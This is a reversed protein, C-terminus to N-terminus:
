PKTESAVEPKESADAASTPPVPLRMRMAPHMPPVWCPVPVMQMMPHPMMPMMPMPPCYAWPPYFPYPFPGGPYPPIQWPVPGPYGPMLAPQAIDGASICENGTQSDSDTTEAKTINAVAAPQQSPLKSSPQVRATTTTLRADIDQGLQGIDDAETAAESESHFTSGKMAPVFGIPKTEGIAGVSSVCSGDDPIDKDCVSALSRTSTDNAFLEDHTGFLNSDDTYLSTPPEENMFDTTEQSAFHKHPMTSGMGCQVSAQLNNQVVAPITGSSPQDFNEDAFPLPYLTNHNRDTNFTDSQPATTMTAYYPNHFPSPMDQQFQSSYCHLGPPFKPAGSSPLVNFFERDTNSSEGLSHNTFGPPTHHLDRLGFADAGPNKEQYLHPSCAIYDLQGFLTSDMGSNKVNNDYFSTFIQEEVLGNDQKQVSTEAQDLLLSHVEDSTYNPEECELAQFEKVSRCLM